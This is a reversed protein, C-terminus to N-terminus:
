PAADTDGEESFLGADRLETIFELDGATRYMDLNHIIPLDRELQRNPEALQSGILTYGLAVTALCGALALAM